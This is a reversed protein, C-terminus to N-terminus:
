QMTKVTEKKQFQDREKNQQCLFLLLIHFHYLINIHLNRISFIDKKRHILGPDMGTTCSISSFPSSPSFDFISSSRSGLSPSSQRPTMSVAEDWVMWVLHRSSFNSSSSTVQKNAPNKVLLLYRVSSSHLSFKCNANQTAIYSFTIISYSVIIINSAPGEGVAPASSGLAIKDDVADNEYKESIQETVGRENSGLEIISPM